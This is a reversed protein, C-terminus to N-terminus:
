ELAPMICLPIAPQEMVHSSFDSKQHSVISFNGKHNLSFSVVVYTIDPHIVSKIWDRGPTIFSVRSKLPLSIPSLFHFSSFPFHAFLAQYAQTIPTTAESECIKRSPSRLSLFLDSLAM